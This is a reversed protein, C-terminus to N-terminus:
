CRRESSAQAASRPIRVDFFGLQSPQGSRNTIYSELTFLYWFSRRREELQAEDDTPTLGIQFGPMPPTAPPRDVHHLGLIRALQIARGLTISARTLRKGLIEYRMVLLLAQFANLSLMEDGDDCRECLELQERAAFYCPDRSGELGPTALAGLLAIGYSLASLSRSDSVSLLEVEFRQRNIIPIASSM